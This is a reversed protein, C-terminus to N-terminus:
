AKDPNGEITIEIDEELVFTNRIVDMIEVIWASDIYSPTGGVFFISKIQYMYSIDEYLMIENKLEDVYQRQLRYGCNGFSLFDCYSCKEKCFPIHVYLSLERRNLDDM